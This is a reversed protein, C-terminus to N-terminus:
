RSLQMSRGRLHLMVTDSAATVQGRLGTHRQLIGADDYSRAAVAMDTHGLGGRRYIRCAISMFLEPQVRDASCPTEVQISGGQCGLGATM